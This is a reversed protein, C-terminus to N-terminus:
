LQQIPFSATFQTSRKSFSQSALMSNSDISFSLENESLKLGKLLQRILRKFRKRFRGSNCNLKLWFVSLM